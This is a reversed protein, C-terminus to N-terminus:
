KKKKKLITPNSIFFLVKKLGKSQKSMKVGERVKRLLTLGFYMCIGFCGFLLVCLICFLSFLLAALPYVMELLAVIFFGILYVETFIMLAKSSSILKKSFSESISQM